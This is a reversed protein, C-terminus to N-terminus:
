NEFGFCHDVNYEGCRVKICVVAGKNAICLKVTSYERIFVHFTLKQSYMSMTGNWAETTFNDENLQSEMGKNVAFLVM